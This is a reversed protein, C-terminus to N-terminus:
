QATYDCCVSVCVPGLWYQSTILLSFAISSSNNVLFFSSIIHLYIAAWIPQSIISTAASVLRLLHLCNFCFFFSFFFSWLLVLRCSNTQREKRETKRDQPVTHWHRKTSETSRFGFRRKRRDTGSKASEHMEILLLWRRVYKRQLVEWHSQTNTHQHGRRRRVWSAM